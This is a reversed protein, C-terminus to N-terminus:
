FRYRISLEPYFLRYLGNKYLNMSCGDKNFESLHCGIDGSIRVSIRFPSEKFVFDFGADGTMGLMLGMDIHRDKLVGVSVGPCFLFRVELKESPKWRRLINDHLYSLKVGPVNEKGSIIGELDAVLRIEGMTDEDYPLVVTLGVNKASFHAGFESRKSLISTISQAQISLASACGILAALIIRTANTM